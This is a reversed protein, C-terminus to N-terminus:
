KKKWLIDRLLRKRILNQFNRTIYKLQPQIVKSKIACTVELWRKGWALSFLFSSCFTSFPRYFHLRIEIGDSECFIWREILMEICQYIHMTQVKGFINQHRNRTGRESRRRMLLAVKDHLGHFIEVNETNSAKSYYSDSKKLLKWMYASTKENWNTKIM